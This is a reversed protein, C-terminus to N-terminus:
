GRGVKRCAQSHSVSQWWGFQLVHEAGGNVYESLHWTGECGCAALAAAEDLSASAGTGHARPSMYRRADGIPFHNLRNM